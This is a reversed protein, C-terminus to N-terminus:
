TRIPHFCMVNDLELSHDHKRNCDSLYSLIRSGATGNRSTEPSRPHLHEDHGHISRGIYEAM